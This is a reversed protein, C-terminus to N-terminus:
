HTVIFQNPDVQGQPGKNVQRPTYGKGIETNLGERIEFHLHYPYSGSSGCGKGKTWAGNGVQAIPENPTVRTLTPPGSPLWDVHAYMSTYVGFPTEHKVFVINGWSCVNSQVSVVTGVATSYVLAGEDQPGAGFNYDAGLHYGYRKNNNVYYHRQFPQVDRWADTPSPQLEDTLWYCGAPDGLWDGCFDYHGRSNNLPDIPWTFFDTMPGIFQGISFPSTGVQVTGVVINTATDIVSVTDSDENAVYVRSGDPHVSIGLPRRGVVVTTTLTNTAADIVSVSDSDANAIYVRSGDPHVAVGLPFIGFAAVTAIVTDTATDIVSVTHSDTNTVYVRSGNPHVAVGSPGNEVGVTAIVANMATDIVSVANSDEYAVYVRSGDPHVAVGRPAIRSPFIGAVTAIVTNTTTDIVSVEGSGTNAVYVRNGDPHVAIGWPELGVAVTAIVSNTATDIVSVTSTPIIRFNTVYVRSGDRHVAVGTPQTGVAVTAIVTNTATDIVSVSDSGSNAIYAFPAGMGVGRLSFLICICVVARTLSKM